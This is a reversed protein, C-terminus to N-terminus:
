WGEASHLDGLCDSVIASIGCEGSDKHEAWDPKQGKNSKSNKANDKCEDEAGAGAAFGVLM